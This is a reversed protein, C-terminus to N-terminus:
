DIDHKGHLQDLQAKSDLRSAMGAIIASSATPGLKGKTLLATAAPLSWLMNRVTNTKPPLGTTLATRVDSRGAMAPASGISMLAEPINSPVELPLEVQGLRAQQKIINELDRLSTRRGATAAVHGAAAGTGVTAATGFNRLKNIVNPHFLRSIRNFTKTKGIRGGLAQRAANGALGGGLMAIINSFIPWRLLLNPTVGSAEALTSARSAREAGWPSLPHLYDTILPKSSDRLLGEVIEPTVKAM